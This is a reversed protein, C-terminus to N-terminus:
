FTERKGPNQGPTRGKASAIKAREPLFVKNHQKPGHKTELLLRPLKKYYSQLSDKFVQFIWLFYSFELIGFFFIFFNFDFESVNFFFNFLFDLFSNMFGLLGFFTLFIKKKLLFIEFIRLFNNKKM